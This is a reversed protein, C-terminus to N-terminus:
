RSAGAPVTIKQGPYILNPNSITAENARYIITYRMGHGYLQRAILWLSQGQKVMVQGPAMGSIAQPAYATNMRGVVEGGSGMEQLHFTGPQRPLSATRMEWRGDKGAVATGLMTRGMSLVVKSGPKATGAIVAAGSGDYDVSGIGLSGAKPGQGSLVRSPNRGSGGLVALAGENPASPVNVTVGRSSAIKTGDAMRDSLTLEQAGSHLPKSTVFAFSGSQDVKVKGVPKGNSRITVESGPAATGAIVANGGADVRVVGFDPGSPAAKRVTETANRPAPPQTPEFSSKGGLVALGVIAIIGLSCIGGIVIWNQTNGPPPQIQQTQNQAM